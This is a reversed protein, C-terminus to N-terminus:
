QIRLVDIEYHNSETPRNVLTIEYEVGDIELRDDESIEAVPTYVRHSAVVTEKGGAFRESGSLPRLRCQVSDGLRYLDETGWEGATYELITATKDYAHHLYM